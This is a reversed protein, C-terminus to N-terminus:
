VCRFQVEVRPYNGLVFPPKSESVSTVQLEKSQGACHAGAEQLADVKLNGLGPFGTAAQKTILMTGSGVPVVGSNTACGALGSVLFLLSLGRILPTYTRMRRDYRFFAGSDSGSRPFSGCIM